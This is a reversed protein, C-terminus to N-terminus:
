GKKRELEQVLKEVRPLLGAVRTQQQLLEERDEELRAEVALVWAKMARFLGARMTAAGPGAIRNDLEELFERGQATVDDM